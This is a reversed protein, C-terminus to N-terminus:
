WNMRVVRAKKEGEGEGEGESEDSDSMGGGQEQTIPGGRTAQSGSGSGSGSSRGSLTLGEEQTRLGSSQTQTFGDDDPDLYEQTEQSAGLSTRVYNSVARFM